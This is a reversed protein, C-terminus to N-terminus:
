FLYKIIRHLNRNVLINDCVRNCGVNGDNANGILQFYNKERPISLAKKRFEQQQDNNWASSFSNNYINGIPIRHSKLCSNYDGNARIRLFIWGAYCPIKDIFSDYEGLCAKQNSIRRLFIDGNAIKVRPNDTKIGRSTDIFEQRLFKLQEQNLLLSDTVNPIVDPIGFEVSDCGSKRALSTVKRLETFNRSTLLVFLRVQLNKSKSANVFKLNDKIKNFLELDRNHIRSYLAADAAWLSISFSALRKFSLLRNIDTRNLLTFNTNIRFRLGKEQTFKLIEWIEPYLFPEGGGSFIIEQTGAKAIDIIFDKVVKCDLESNIINQRDGIFPSHLWCAFCHSNCRDTLDIQVVDPAKYAYHKTAIGKLNLYRRKNERFSIKNFIKGIM